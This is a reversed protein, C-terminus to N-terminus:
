VARPQQELVLRYPGIVVPVGARLAVREVRQADVWTGNQSNLDILVYADDVLRLEAHFRSVTQDPDDLVVDNQQARGITLGRRGLDIYRHLENDRFIVLRNVPRGARHRVGAGALRRVPSM